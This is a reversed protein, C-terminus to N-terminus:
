NCRIGRIRVSQHVNFSGWKGKHNAIHRMGNWQNSALEDTKYNVKKIVDCDGHGITVLVKESPVFYVESSMIQTLESLYFISECSIVQGNLARVSLWENNQFYHCRTSSFLVVFGYCTAALPRFQCSIWGFNNGIELSNIQSKKRIEYNYWGCKKPFQRSIGLCNMKMVQEVSVFTAVLWKVLFAEVNSQLNVANGWFHTPLVHSIHQFLLLLKNKYQWANRIWKVLLEETNPVFKAHLILANSPFKM